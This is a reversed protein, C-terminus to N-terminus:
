AKAASSGLILNLAVEANEMAEEITSHQTWSTIENCGERQIVCHYVEPYIRKDRMFDAFHSGRQLRPYRIIHEPSNGARPAKEETATTPAPEPMKLIRRVVAGTREDRLPRCSTSCLISGKPRVQSVPSGTYVTTRTCSEGVM